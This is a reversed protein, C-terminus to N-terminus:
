LPSLQRQLFILARTITDDFPGANANDVHGDVGNDALMPAAGTQMPERTKVPLPTHRRYFGHDEGPYAQVNCIADADRARGCFTRVTEISVRRDNEGHFIMTPPLAKVSLASPSIQRALPKLYWRAPTVLDVVPNFLILAAPKKEPRAEMATVLALQGGASGGSLVIRSPAIGLEGAHRRVWKYAARADAVASLPTTGDRCSVRYDAIISVYGRAAFAHAQDVFSTVSGSRWGGGFFFLIASSPVANPRAPQFVFLRLPRNSATRYIISEADPLTEPAPGVEKCASEGPELTFGPLVSRSRAQQLTTPVDSDNRMDGKSCAGLVLVSSLLCCVLRMASSWAAGPGYEIARIAAVNMPHGLASKQEGVDRIM